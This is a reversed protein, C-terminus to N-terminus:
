RDGLERTRKLTENVAEITAYRFNNKELSVLGAITSGGPSTVQNRLKAPHENMQLVMESAGLLTQAALTKSEEFSLGNQIGADTLSEIFAYVYGPGSGAIATASDIKDEPLRMVIGAETMLMEFLEAHDNNNTAYTIMGHGIAVPTNPMMRIINEVPVFDSLQDISVGAAMSIWLTHDNKVDELVSNILHPKVGLFIVEAEKAITQKDVVQGGIQNQLNKAKEENYNDLLLEHNGSKAVAKAVASGMNGVGLFGIKM